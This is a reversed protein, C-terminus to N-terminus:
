HGVRRLANGGARTGYVRWLDFTATIECDAFRWVTLGKGDVPPIPSVCQEGRRGTVIWYKALYDGWEAPFRPADQMRAIERRRADASNGTYPCAREAAKEFGKAVISDVRRGQVEVWNIPWGALQETTASM